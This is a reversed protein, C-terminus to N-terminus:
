ISVDVVEDEDSLQNILGRIFGFLIFTLCVPFLAHQPFLIIITSFVLFFGLKIKNKRDGHLTLKPYTEYEFHSIMLLSLFIVFTALFMPFRVTNWLTECFILYSALATAAAPIPLGDFNTKEFGRLMLNFRALRFSGFMLPLFSLILGLFGLDQLYWAYVLIAPAVGFSIVDALSDLEVGFSSFGKTIRAVTGDIADFVGALIILWAATVYDNAFASKIALFGCFVNGM